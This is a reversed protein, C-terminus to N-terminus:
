NNDNLPQFLQSLTISTSFSINFLQLGNEKTTPPSKEELKLLASPKVDQLYDWQSIPPGENACM